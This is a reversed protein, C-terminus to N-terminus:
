RATVRIVVPMNQGLDKRQHKKEIQLNIVGIFAPAINRDLKEAKDTLELGVNSPNTRESQQKAQKEKGSIM